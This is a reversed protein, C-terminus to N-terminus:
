PEVGYSRVYWDHVQQTTPYYGYKRYFWAKYSAQRRSTEELEQQKLHRKHNYNTIGIASGIGALGGFIINRTSAAGDALAPRAAFPSVVLALALSATAFRKSM